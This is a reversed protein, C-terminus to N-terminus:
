RIPRKGANLIGNSQYRCDPHQSEASSQSTLSISWCRRSEDRRAMACLTAM